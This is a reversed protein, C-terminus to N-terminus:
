MSSQAVVNPKGASKQYDGSLWGQDLESMDTTVSNHPNRRARFFYQSRGTTMM